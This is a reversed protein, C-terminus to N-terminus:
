AEPPLHQSPPPASHESLTPLQDSVKQNTDKTINHTKATIYGAVAVLLIIVAQTLQLGAPTQLWDWADM